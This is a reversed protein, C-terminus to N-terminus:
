RPLRENLRDYTLGYKAAIAIAHSLGDAPRRVVKFTRMAPDDAEVTSVMSVVSDGLRTLEDVFTVCVCLVDRSMLERLVNSGLDIADALSTSNFIENLIVVSDSTATELIAHVRTLDSELKGVLDTADEEREFHTFMEDYLYVQVDRGPVPCGLKGLYHLQGFTRAFTTKGGQNPGTVVFMREIGTLSFDNCVVPVGDDVLKHALAVDFTANARVEKSSDSVTPYCFALGAHKMPAIFGMYGLYFQIERDFAAVVADLYDAHQSCYADVAGFVAPYLLAVRDLIQAEVHNMDPWENFKMLYTKGARRRFRDFTMAVEASYDSEGEYKTIDVRNAQIRLCYRVSALKSKVDETETVLRGFRPSAVYAKLYGAIATLGESSVALVALDQSLEAVAVCYDDIADIFWRQKQRQYRMRRVQELKNRMDRMRHGFSEVCGRVDDRELDRFVEHRYEVASVASLPSHLFPLLDYGERGNAVADLVQDLNLDKLLDPPQRSGKDPADFGAPYLVSCWGVDDAQKTPVGTTVSQDVAM